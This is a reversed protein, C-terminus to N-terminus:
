GAEGDPLDLWHGLRRRKALLYRRNAPHPEVQLPVRAAISLGYAELQRLKDPNNTLLRARGVGLAKLVQAAAAYDRADVPLGLARNAEVTDLGEDQLRYARIKNALGIGRGEQRLYVLVGRGAKGLADLAAELQAGCDCRLSGLADGTLCESHVRVLVAEGGDGRGAAGSPLGRSLALHVEGSPLYEFAHLVFEGHRTPLRTAAVERVLRERRVRYAAIDGVRVVVLGHRRAWGALEGARAARGDRGLIECIAAVPQLGALRMLDVAAETHGRRELVGWPRAKLPFVHGPRVLDAPGTAPDALLRITRARDQASIGTTVGDRADVSVTFPTAMPDRPPDVMLPLHLAECREPAMPVCILGRGHELMFNIHDATVHEAAVVLDGEAERHDDDIVVVMRGARLAALAAQVREELEATAQPRPPAPSAASGTGEGAGAAGAPLPTGPREPLGRTGPGDGAPATGPGACARAGLAAAVWRAAYRALLDVELNVPDGARRRGLTTHRATHPIIAVSFRRGAVDVVTLSVGDVAVSGKPALYPVLQEPVEIWLLTADGWPEAAVVRGVGDVHGQVLHGGLRDGLRLSRELNVPDGPGLRGLTTVRLTEPVVHFVMQDQEVDAVTLCVGNVAVSDGPRSAAAMGPEEIWLRLGGGTDQVRRCTGLAEVLGTFM